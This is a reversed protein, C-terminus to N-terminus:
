QCFLVGVVAKTTTDMSIVKSRNFIIAELFHKLATKQALNQKDGNQELIGFSTFLYLIHMHSVQLLTCLDHFTMKGTTLMAVLLELVCM